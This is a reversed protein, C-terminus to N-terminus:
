RAKTAKTAGHRSRSASSSCRPLTMSDHTSTPLTARTPVRSSASKRRHLISRPLYGRLSARTTGPVGAQAGHDDPRRHVEVRVARLERQAKPRVAASSGVTRDARDPASRRQPDEELPARRNPRHSRRGVDDPQDTGESRQELEHREGDGPSRRGRPSPTRPRRRADPVDATPSGLGPGTMNTGRNVARRKRLGDILTAVDPHTNAYLEKDDPADVRLGRRARPGQLPRCRASSGGM